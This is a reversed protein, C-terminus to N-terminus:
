RLSAKASEALSELASPAAGTFSATDPASPRVNASPSADGDDDSGCATLATMGLVPVLALAATAMATRRRDAPHRRRSTTRTRHTDM